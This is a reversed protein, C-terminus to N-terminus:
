LMYSLTLIGILSLAVFIARIMKDQPKYHVNKWKINVPNIANHISIGNEMFVQNMDLDNKYVYISEELDRKNGFIVYAGVIQGNYTKMKLKEIRDEIKRVLKTNQNKIAEGRLELYHIMDRNNFILDFRVIDIGEISILDM